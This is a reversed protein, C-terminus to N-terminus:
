ASTEKRALASDAGFLRMARQIFTEFWTEMTESMRSRKKPRMKVTAIAAAFVIGAIPIGYVLWIAWTHLALLNTAALGAMRIGSAAVFASMITRVRGQRTTQALGLQSLAVLVFVIPYLASAFREHIESRFKGPQGIYLRDNPDPNLLEGLYRARVKLPRQKDKPGFQELDIAYQSFAIIQAADADAPRRIIHGDKMILYAENGQKYIEGREALYTTSITKDRDDQMVLGRLEGQFTRDRIHFTLQNEPSSFQGPQLVQSILDTRVKVIYHQLIRTSWPLVYLNALLLLIMVIAGLALFPRAFRWVTAGSATMVILESDGNAKNLTHIATILLAVPAIIAILNPLALLTMKLFTWTTQGQSTLLTLQKLATAIWVVGTLSLLILLLAGGAQRFLYRSYLDM